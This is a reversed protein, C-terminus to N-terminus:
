RGASRANLALSRALAKCVQRPMIDEAGTLNPQNIPAVKRAVMDKVRQPLPLDDPLLNFHACVVGM